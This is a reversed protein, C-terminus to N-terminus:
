HLVAETYLRILTTFGTWRPWDSVAALGTSQHLNAARVSWYNPEIRLLRILTMFGTWSAVRNIIHTNNKTILWRLLWGLQSTCNGRYGVWNVLAANCFTVWNGLALLSDWSVRLKLIITCRPLILSGTMSQWGVGLTRHVWVRHLMEANIACQCRSIIWENKMEIMWANM